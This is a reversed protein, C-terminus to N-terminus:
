WTLVIKGITGDGAMLRHAEVVDTMPMVAHVVPKLAGTEFAPLVERTFRKALVIKEELPRSRLVSGILRGRRSLLPALPLDAVAGGLLGILVWRGGRALVKANDEAYSGGVPDLIVDVGGHTLDRVAERFTGGEVVVVEECGLEGVADIKEASRTTGIAKAGHLRALQIAATGVGSAVAHVLLTDGRRLGGQLVVADWATIFVEPIAAARVLTMGRPVPLVEGKHVVLHTAMAGGGVIGMVEDGVSWSEVGEGVAEVTGAYELGPVDAPVGPPAPYFGARQVLDARNLGAAAVAVRVEDPGPARIELSGLALVEPGGPENIHVARATLMGNLYRM